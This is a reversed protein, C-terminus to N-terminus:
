SAAGPKTSGDANQNDPLKSSLRRTEHKAQLAAERAESATEAAQKAAERAQRAYKALSADRKALHPDLDRDIRELVWRRFTTLFTVLFAMIAAFGAGLEIIKYLGDNM